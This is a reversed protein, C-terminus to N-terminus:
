LRIPFITFCVGVKLVTERVETIPYVEVQKMAVTRTHNDNGEGFTTWYGRYIAGSAGKDVCDGTKIVDSVTFTDPFTGTEQVIYTLLRRKLDRRRAAKVAESPDKNSRPDVAM